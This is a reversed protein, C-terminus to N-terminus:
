YTFTNSIAYAVRYWKEYTNTISLNRNRLYKIFGQIQTRKLNRGAPNLHEKLVFYSTKPNRTKKNPSSIELILDQANIEFEDAKQKIILNTDSSIFCLRTIDSGSRDMELEYKEKMYNHLKYFAYKHYLYINSTNLEILYNFKVLGKIGNGSPSRWYSFIYPDSNFNKYIERSTEESTHDIDVVCIDTYKQIAEIRRNISFLGSFTISPLKTKEQDYRKNDNKKLYNRLKLIKNNYQGEKIQNLFEGISITKLNTSWVYDQYTVTSLLLDDITIMDM